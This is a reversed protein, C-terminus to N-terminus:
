PPIAQTTRIIYILPGRSGYTRSLADEFIPYWKIVHRDGDKDKISPSEFEVKFSSLVRDYRMSASTMYRGISTYYKVTNSAVILRQVLISSIKARLVEPEATIGAAVDEVIEPIKRKCILHLSEISNKDFDDLSKFNTIGEYTIRLVAADSSLKTNTNAKLWSKFSATVAPPM